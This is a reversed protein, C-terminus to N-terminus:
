QVDFGGGHAHSEAPAKPLAVRLPAIQNIAVAAVFIELVIRDLFIRFERNPAYNVILHKILFAPAHTSDFVRKSVAAAQAAGIGAGVRRAPMETELAEAWECAWVHDLDCLANRKDGKGIILNISQVLKFPVDNRTPNFRDGPELHWDKRFSPELVARDSDFGQAQWSAFGVVPLLEEGNVTLGAHGSSIWFLGTVAIGPNQRPASGSVCDIWAAGVRKMDLLFKRFIPSDDVHGRNEQGIAFAGPTTQHAIQPLIGM